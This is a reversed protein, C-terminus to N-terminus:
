LLSSDWLMYLKPQSSSSIEAILGPDAILVHTATPYLRWVATLSDTRALGFGTFEYSIVEYKTKGLLIENIASVSQDTTRTDVMFVFYDIINLWLHLNSRFNVEENRCIMSIALSMKASCIQCLALLAVLLSRSVIMEVAPTFTVVM